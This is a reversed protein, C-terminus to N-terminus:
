RWHDNAFDDIWRTRQLRLRLDSLTAEGASITFPEILMSSLLTSRSRPNLPMAGQLILVSAYKAHSRTLAANGWDFIRDGPSIGAIAIASPRRPPRSRGVRYKISWLMECRGSPLSSTWSSSRRITKSAQGNLARHAASLM